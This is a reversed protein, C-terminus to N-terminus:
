SCCAAMADGRGVESVDQVEVCWNTMKQSPRMVRACLQEEKVTHTQSLAVGATATGGDGEGDGLGLGLGLLGLGLGLGEGLGAGGAQEVLVPPVSERMQVLLTDTVGAEVSSTERTM